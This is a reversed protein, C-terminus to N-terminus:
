RSFDVLRSSLKKDVNELEISNYFSTNFSWELELRYSFCWVFGACRCQMKDRFLQINAQGNKLGLHSHVMIGLIALFSCKGDTEVFNTSLLIHWKCGSFWPKTLLCIKVLKMAKVMLLLILLYSMYIVLPYDFCYAAWEQEMKQQVYRM